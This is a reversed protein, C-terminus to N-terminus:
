RAQRGMYVKTSMIRQLNYHDTLVTVPYRAGELYHLWHKYSMVLALMEQDSVTYNREVPTMSRMWFIVPHWNRLSPTGEIPALSQAALDQKSDVLQSIIGAITFGSLDKELSIQKDPDFYILFPAETFAEQLHCFAEIMEPTLWFVMKLKSGIGRKLMDSM